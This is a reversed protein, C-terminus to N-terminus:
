PDPAVHRVRFHAAKVAASKMSRKTWVTCITPWIWIGRRENVTRKVVSSLLSCLAELHAAARLLESSVESIDVFNADRVEM